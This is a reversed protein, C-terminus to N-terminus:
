QGCGEVAFFDKFRIEISEVLFDILNGCFVLKFDTKVALLRRRLTVLCPLLYGYSCYKEGQLKNIADILPRSCNLYEGLYKFDTDQMPNTIGLIGSSKLIDERLSIILELSDFLSNWRVCVPKTLAKGLHEIM